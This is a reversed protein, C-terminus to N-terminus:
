AYIFMFLDEVCMLLGIILMPVFVAKKVKHPNNKVFNRFFLVVVTILLLTGVIGFQFIMSVYFNHASMGLIRTAGLGKGFVLTTPNKLLYEIYGVWLDYRDTTIINLVEQTTLDDVEISIFRDAYALIYDTKLLTLILVVASFITIGTIAKFPAVKLAFIVMIIIMIVLLILFTKSFTSLGLAMFIFFSISDKWTFQKTLVFYVFLSLCIECLMALTNPNILLAEFRIFGNDMYFFERTNHLYPSVFYTLYFLVSVFLSLALLNLNFKVRVKDPYNNILNFVIFLAVIIGLKIFLKDNFNIPSFLCFLIFLLCMILLAKNVKKKDVKFMIYYTKILFVIISIGYMMGSTLKSLCCFPLCFILLSFGDEISSFIVCLTVFSFAIYTFEGIFCNILFLIAVLTCNVLLRNNLYIEKIKGKSLIRKM